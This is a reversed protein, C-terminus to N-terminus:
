NYNKIKKIFLKYNNTVGFIDQGGYMFINTANKYILPDSCINRLWKRGKILQLWFEM